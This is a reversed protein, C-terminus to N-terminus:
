IRGGCVGLGLGWWRKNGVVVGFGRGRKGDGGWGELGGREM